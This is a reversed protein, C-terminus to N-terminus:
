DMWLRGSRVTAADVGLRTEDDMYEEPGVVRKGKPGVELCEASRTSEGLFEEFGDIVRGIETLLGGKELDDYFWPTHKSIGTRVVHPCIANLTINEKPLILNGYSRVLGAIASHM